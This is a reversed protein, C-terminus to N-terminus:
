VEGVAYVFRLRNIINTHNYIRVKQNKNVPVAVGDTQNNLTRTGQINWIFNGNTDLIDVGYNVWNSDDPHQFGICLLGNAGFTYITGSAGPTVDVYKNSPLAQQAIFETDGFDVGRFAPKTYLATIKGSSVNAFGIICESDVSWGNNYYEWLNDAENYWRTWNIPNSPRPGSFYTDTNGWYSVSGPYITIPYGSGTVTNPM